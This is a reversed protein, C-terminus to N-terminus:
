YNVNINDRKGAEAEFLEEKHFNFMNAIINSPFMQVKNNYVNVEANYIRRAAQLQNEMKTLTKQLQLFHESAKLDPYNEALAMIRNFEINLAEGDKLNKTQMYQARKETIAVLTDKEYEMYGKVCEVLNPILDFRQTLYVDIGSAAQAIKNKGKILTNYTIIVYAIIIVILWILSEM